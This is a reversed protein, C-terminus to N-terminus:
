TYSLHMLWNESDAWFSMLVGRRWMVLFRMKFPAVVCFRRLRDAVYLRLEEPAEEVDRVIEPRGNVLVVIDELDQSAYYDGEGRSEFAVLKTSLFCAPSIVNLAIGDLTMAKPSRLAEHYWRNSFGLVSEDTPMVDVRLGDLEWACTPAGEQTCVAFGLERLKVAVSLEYDVYSAVEVIVDVDDTPRVKPAAVDTLLLGLTAGGVFVVENRFEGLARAVQLLQERNPDSAGM